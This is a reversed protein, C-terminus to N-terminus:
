VGVSCVRPHQADAPISGWSGPTYAALFVSYLFFYSDEESSEPLLSPFPEDGLAGQAPLMRHGWLFPLTCRSCTLAGSLFTVHSCVPLLPDPSSWFHFCSWCPQTLVPAWPATPLCCPEKYSALLFPLVSFPHCQGILPFILGRVSWDSGCNLSNLSLFFCCIEHQLHM